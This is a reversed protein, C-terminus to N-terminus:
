FRCNFRLGIGDSAVMPSWDLQMRKSKSNDSLDASNKISAQRGAHIASALHNIAMGAAFYIVSNFARDSRIRIKEMTARNGESDWNWVEDDASYISGFNRELMRQNNFDDVSMWNGVDVYFDHDHDGIVGAHASALAKYDDRTSSGYARMSLIGSLCLVEASFFMLATRKQGLSHQGWGPILLSQLFASGGKGEAHAPVALATLLLSAILLFALKTHYRTM